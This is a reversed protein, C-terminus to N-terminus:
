FGKRINDAIGQVLRDLAEQSAWAVHPSLRLREPHTTHLLPQGEPVPECTFVDVAAGAITGDSIADALAAEDIIGGRAMNLILATPKM